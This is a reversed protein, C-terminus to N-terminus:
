LIHKSKDQKYFWIIKRVADTIGFPHNNNLMLPMDKNMGTTNGKTSTNRTGYKSDEVESLYV